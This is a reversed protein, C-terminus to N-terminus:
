EASAELRALIAARERPSLGSWAAIEAITRGCGLCIGTAPELRCVGVCPSVVSGRREASRGIGGNESPDETKM